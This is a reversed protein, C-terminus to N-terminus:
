RGAGSTLRGRLAQVGAALAVLVSAVLGILFGFWTVDGVVAGLGATADKTLASLVLCIVTLAALAVAIQLLPSPRRIPM